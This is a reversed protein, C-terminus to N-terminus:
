QVIDPQRSELAIAGLGLSQSQTLEFCSSANKRRPRRKVIEEKGWWGEESVKREEVVIRSKERIGEEYVWLWCYSACEVLVVLDFTRETM